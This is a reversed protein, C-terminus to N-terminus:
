DEDLQLSKALSIISLVLQNTFFTSDAADTLIKPFIHDFLRSKTHQICAKVLTSQDSIKSLQECQMTTVFHMCKYKLMIVKNIKSM